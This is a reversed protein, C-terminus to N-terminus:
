RDRMTTLFAPSAYRQNTVVLVGEIGPEPVGRHPTDSFYPFRGPRDARFSVFVTEGPDLNYSFVYYAPLTFNHKKIGRNIIQLAVTEGARVTMQKPIINGEQIVVTQPEAAAFSWPLFFVMGALVGAM